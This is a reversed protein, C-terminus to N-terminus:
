AQVKEVARRKLDTTDYNKFDRAPVNAEFLLDLEEYTKGNTEPLRFYAWVILITSSSAAILAAKGQLNWQTPNQFVLTLM